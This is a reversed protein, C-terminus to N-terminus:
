SARYLITVVRLRVSIDFQCVGRFICIFNTSRISSCVYIYLVCICIRLCVNRSLAYLFSLRHHASVEFIRYLTVNQYIWFYALDISKVHELHHGQFHTSVRWAKRLCFSNKPANAFNRTAVILMTMNTRGDMRRFCSTEWHV